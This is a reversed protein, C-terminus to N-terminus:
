NTNDYYYDKFKAIYMETLFESVRESQIWSFVKILIDTTSSSEELELNPFEDSVTQQTVTFIVIDFEPITITTSELVVTIPVNLREALYTLEQAIQRLM